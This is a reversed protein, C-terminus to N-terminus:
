AAMKWSELRESEFPPPDHLFATRDKGLQHIVYRLVFEALTDLSVFPVLVDPFQATVHLKQDHTKGLQRISFAQSVDLGAELGDAAFEIMCADTPMHGFASQGVGVFFSIPSDEAVKCMDQNCLCDFEVGSFGEARIQRVRGIGQVRGCDIQAKGQEGPRLEAFALSRYFQVSQQGQMAVEWGKDNNSGALNVVYIDEVIQDEIGSREVDHISAVYIELPKVSNVLRRREKDGAGLGIELEAAAIRSRHVLGDANVEVLGNDQGTKVGMPLIGIRQSADAVGIRIGAFLQDEHGVVHDFRRDGDGPEIARAPLDFQKEFPDFLMQPDLGKIAGRGVGHFCLDPDGDRGIDENCDQALQEAQRM